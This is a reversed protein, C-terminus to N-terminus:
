RLGEKLLFSGALMVTIGLMVHAWSSVADGFYYVAGVRMISNGVVFFAWAALWHPAGNFTYFLCVQALVIPLFTKPLAAIIGGDTSRNVYEIFIIAVNSIISAVWWPLFSLM